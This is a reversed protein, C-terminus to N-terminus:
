EGIVVVRESDAIYEKEGNEGEISGFPMQAQMEWHEPLGLLEKVSKDFGQEYGVNMHQLSGGLNMETLALWVAYQVNANNNQKYIEVRSPSTPMEKVAELDEFFLITGVANKAGEMVGSMMEWMDGQLVDKQVDLIHDWLEVNKDGFVFAVRTTQSNSASPVDRVIETIREVIEENTLDTDNGIMYQSRRNKVLETLNSM